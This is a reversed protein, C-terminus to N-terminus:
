RQGRTVNRLWRVPETTPDNLCNFLVFLHKGRYGNSNAVSWGTPPYSYTIPSSCVGNSCAYNNVYPTVTANGTDSVMIRTTTTFIATGFNAGAANTLTTGISFDGNDPLGQVFVNYMTQTYSSSTTIYGYAGTDPGLVNLSGPMGVKANNTGPSFYGTSGTKLATCSSVGGATSGTTYLTCSYIYILGERCFFLSNAVVSRPSATVYLTYTGASCFPCGVALLAGARSIGVSAGFGNGASGGTITTTETCTYNNQTNDNCVYLLVQGVTATPQTGGSFDYFDYYPAGIAIVQGSSSIATGTYSNKVVASGTAVDWVNFQAHAPRPVFGLVAIFAAAALLALHRPKM